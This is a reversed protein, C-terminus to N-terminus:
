NLPKGHEQMSMISNIDSSYAGLDGTILRYSKTVAFSTVFFEQGSLGYYSLDMKDMVYDEMDNINCDIINRDGIYESVLASVIGRITDNPTEITNYFVMLNEVSFSVASAVTVIKGDKTTLTQPSLVIVRRRTSQIYLKDFFPIKLYFGAELLSVKTGLRVRVAQEWPSVVIWWTFLRKLIEIISIQM